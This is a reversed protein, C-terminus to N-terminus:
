EGLHAPVLPCNPLKTQNISNKDTFNEMLIPNFVLENTGISNTSFKMTCNSYNSCLKKPFHDNNIKAIQHSDSQPSQIALLGLSNFNKNSDIPGSKFQIVFLVIFLIILILRLLRVNKFISLFRSSVNGTNWCRHNSNFMLGNTNTKILKRNNNVTIIQKILSDNDSHQSQFYDNEDIKDDNNDEEMENEEMMLQNPEMELINDNNNNNNMNLDNISYDDATNNGSINDMSNNPILKRYRYMKSKIMDNSTKMRTENHDLKSSNKNLLEEWM